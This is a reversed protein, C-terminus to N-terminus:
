RYAAGEVLPALAPQTTRLARVCACVCVCLYRDIEFLFVGDIVFLRYRVVEASLQTM